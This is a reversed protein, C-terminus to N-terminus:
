QKSIYIIYKTLLMIYKLIVHCYHDQKKNTHLIRILGIQHLLFGLDYSFLKCIIILQLNYDSQVQVCASRPYATGIIKLKTRRYESEKKKTLVERNSYRVSRYFPGSWSNLCDAYLSSCQPQSGDDFVILCQQPNARSRPNGRLEQVIGEFFNLSYINQVGGRRRAKVRANLEM